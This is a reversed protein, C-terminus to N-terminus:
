ALSRDGGVSSFVEMGHGADRAETGGYRSAIAASRVLSCTAGRRHKTSHRRSRLSKAHCAVSEFLDILSLAVRDRERERPVAIAVSARDNKRGAGAAAPERFILDASAHRREVRVTGGNAEGVLHLNGDHDHIRVAHPLGFPALEEAILVLVLPRGGLSPRGSSRRGSRSCFRSMLAGAAARHSGAPDPMTSAQIGSARDNKFKTMTLTSLGGILEFNQSDNFPAPAPWIM